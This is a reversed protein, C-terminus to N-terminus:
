HYFVIDSFIDLKESYLFKLSEVSEDLLGHLVLKKVQCHSLLALLLNISM